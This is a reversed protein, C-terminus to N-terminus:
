EGSSQINQTITLAGSTMAYAIQVYSYQPDLAQILANTTVTIAVAAALAVYDTGNQSVMIQYTAATLASPTITQVGAGDNTILDIRTGANANALSTALYFTNANILIVYYDTAAVLPPPLTVSTSVRVVLGTTFGHAAKTLIDTTFDSTFTGAAPLSAVIKLFVGIGKIYHENDLLRVAVSNVNQVVNITQSNATSNTIM